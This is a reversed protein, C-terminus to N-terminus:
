RPMIAAGSRLSSSLNSLSTHREANDEAIRIQLKVLNALVPEGVIGRIQIAGVPVLGLSEITKSNM